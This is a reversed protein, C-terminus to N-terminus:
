RSGAVWTDMDPHYGRGEIGGDAEEVDSIRWAPEDAKDEFERCWLEWFACCVKCELRGCGANGKLLLANKKGETGADVKGPRRCSEKTRVKCTGSRSLAVTKFVVVLGERRRTANKIGVM